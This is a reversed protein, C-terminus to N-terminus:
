AVGLDLVRHHQLPAPDDAYVVNVIGQEPAFDLDHAAAVSGFRRSQHESVM